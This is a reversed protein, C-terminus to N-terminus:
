RYRSWRLEGGPDAVRLHFAWGGDLDAVKLMVRNWGARLRVGVEIEDPVSINRGQRESLQEGNVWLTHGDDAGLLLVAERDDPSYLFAQLYAAVWDNPEFHPNLRVYGTEDGEVENWRAVRGDPLSYRGGVSPDREPEYVSDLATSHESGLRQPSPFPGVALWERAWRRLPRLHIAAPQADRGAAVEIELSEGRASVTDLLVPDLPLGGDGAPAGVEVEAVRGTAPIRFRATGGGEVGSPYVWVQYRDPRPVPVDLTVAASEGESGESSSLEAGSIAEAPIKVGLVRRQNPPPLPPLAGHPEVQYWYAVTAYDAVEENGHGHEIEMRISDRFRVPDPLHWRYAAIRGREDDKLVLGHYPAAFPGADFYWGGSFYDETGTGMGRFEGDVTFIEDGELFGLTGGYSEANFSVGVLHGWGRAELLLHPEPSTTRRDRNWWAHFTAVPEGLDVGVEADANFYFADVTQGTGNVAVIRAHSAFPMPLYTYFGGSSVGMPLATYHSKEFGNGFFDGLPVSVSPEEEGDWYMRIAIRRLYHPDRSAVTIWIRRLVGPGELDLLVVSDGAAIEYRDRNGGTTDYSSLHRFEGQGPTLLHDWPGQRAEEGPECGSILLFPWILLVAAAMRQIRSKGISVIVGSADM